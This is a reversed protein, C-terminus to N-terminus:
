SFFFSDDALHFFFHFDNGLCLFIYLTSSSALLLLFLFNRSLVTNHSGQSIGHEFSVQCHRRASVLSSVYM